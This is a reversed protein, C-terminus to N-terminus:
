LYPGATSAPETASAAKAERIYKTVTSRFAPDEPDRGHRTAMADVVHRVDQVGDAVMERVGAAISPKKPTDPRVIHLDTRINETDQAQDPATQSPYGSTDASITTEHTRSSTLEGTSAAPLAPAPDASTKTLAATTALAPAYMRELAVDAGQTLRTRQVTLLDAALGTDGQGVKRAIRWSRRVSWKRVKESPHSAARAQQYALDRVLAAARAEAEVDRGEQHIVALRALYAISEAAATIAMPTVAYVITQGTSTAATAGMVAAAAPLAWLGLRALRPAPRGFVTAVLVVLALVATAGEGAGLAGLATQGGYRHSLNAYTGIGGLVGVAVMVLGTVSLLSIKIWSYPTEPSNKM